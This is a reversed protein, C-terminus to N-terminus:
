KRILIPCMCMFIYLDHVWQETFEWLCFTGTFSGGKHVSLANGAHWFGVDTRAEITLAFEEGSKRSRLKNLNQRNKKKRNFQILRKTNHWTQNRKFLITVRLNIATQKMHPQNAWKVLQLIRNYLYEVMLKDTKSSTSTHITELKQASYIISFHVNECRDKLMGSYLNKNSINLRPIELNYLLGQESKNKNKLLNRLKYKLSLTHFLAPSRTFPSLPWPLSNSPSERSLSSVQGPSSIKVWSIM